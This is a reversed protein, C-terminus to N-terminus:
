NRKCSRRSFFDVFMNGIMKFTDDNDFEPGTIIFCTKSGIANKQNKFNQLSNMQTIELEVMDLIHYNFM